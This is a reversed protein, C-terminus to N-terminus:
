WGLANSIGDVIDGDRLWRRFRPSFVLLPLITIIAVIIFIIAIAVAILYLVASFGWLFPIQWRKMPIALVTTNRNFYGLM